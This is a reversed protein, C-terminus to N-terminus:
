TWPAILGAHCGIGAENVTAAFLWALSTPRALGGNVYETLPKTRPSVEDTTVPVAVHVVGAVGDLGAPVYGIVHVAPV